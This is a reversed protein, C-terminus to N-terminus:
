RPFAVAISTSFTWAPETEIVLLPWMVVEAAGLPLEGPCPYMKVSIKTLSVEALPDIESFLVPIIVVVPFM